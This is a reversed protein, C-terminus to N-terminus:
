QIKKCKIEKLLNVNIFINDYDRNFLYGKINTGVIICDGPPRNAFLSFQAPDCKWVTNDSLTIENTYPNLSLIQLTNLNDLEPGLLIKVEISTNTRTNIMKYKYNQFYISFFSDNLTILISDQEKWSFIENKYCDKVGWESGDEIVLYDGFGSVAVVNHAYKLVVPPYSNKFLSFRAGQMNENSKELNKRSGLELTNIEEASLSSSIFFAILM